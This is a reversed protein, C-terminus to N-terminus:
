LGGRGAARGSWVQQPPALEYQLLTADGVATATCVAAQVQNPLDRERSRRCSRVQQPPALEYELPAADGGATHLAVAAISLGSTDLDLQQVGGVVAKVSVQCCM